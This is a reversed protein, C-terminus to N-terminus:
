KKLVKVVNQPKTYKFQMFTHKNNKKKGAM